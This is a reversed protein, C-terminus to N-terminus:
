LPASKEFVNWPYEPSSKLAIEDHPSMWERPPPIPGSPLNRRLANMPASPPSLSPLLIAVLESREELWDISSFLLGIIPIDKLLPFGRVAKRTGEQLLGSLLLPVGFDADVQTKMRNSQIGPIRDIKLSPDLHSVETFIDTRIRRSTTATVKLKLLLGYSRWSVSSNYTSHTEIPLEGGAFLEAEGPARVSLQPQSLVRANGEGEM